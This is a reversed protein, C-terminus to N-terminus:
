SRVSTLNTSITLCYVHSLIQYVYSLKFLVLLIQNARVLKNRLARLFNKATLDMFLTLLFSVSPTIITQVNRSEM